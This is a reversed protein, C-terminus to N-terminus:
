VEDLNIARPIRRLGANAWLPEPENNQWSLNSYIQRCIEKREARSMGTCATLGQRIPEINEPAVGLMEMAEKFSVELGSDGWAAKPVYGHIWRRAFMYASPTGPRNQGRDYLVYDRITQVISWFFITEETKPVQM